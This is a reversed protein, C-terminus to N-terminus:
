PSNNPETIKNYAKLKAKCIAQFSKDTSNINAELAEVVKKRLVPKEKALKELSEIAYEQTVLVKETKAANLLLEAAKDTIPDTPHAFKGLEQIAKSRIFYKEDSLGKVVVDFQSFDGARALLGAVDYKLPSRNVQSNPDAAMAKILPVWDRNGFDCLAEAAWRKNFASTIGTNTDEAHLIEILKPIASYIKKYRILLIVSGKKKDPKDLLALIQEDNADESLGLEKLLAKEASFDLDIRGRPADAHAITFIALGYSILIAFLLQYRVISKANIKEM